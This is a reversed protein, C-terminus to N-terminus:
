QGDAISQLVALNEQMMSLYDLGRQKQADTLSSINYLPVPILGLENILQLRLDIMDQPLNSEIAMYRVNNEILSEKMISLQEEDPLVGYRSLCIPYINIGYADQLHGFNPTMVAISVNSGKLEQYQADLSSLNYELHAYNNNFEEQYAPYRECLYDLVCSAMGNMTIADMWFTPDTYYTDITRFASGEYYSSTTKSEVGNNIKITVRQFPFSGLQDTINVKDLAASSIEDSYIEYYSELPAIYILADSEKLLQKYDEAIGARQILTNESLLQCSIRNGAIQEVLYQLPYCTVLVQYQTRQCGTLFPFMLLISLLIKRLKM